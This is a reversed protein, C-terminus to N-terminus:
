DVTGSFTLTYALELFATQDTWGSIGGSPTIFYTTTQTYVVVGSDDRGEYSFVLAAIGEQDELRWNATESGAFSDTIAADYLDNEDTDYYFNWGGAFGGDGIRALLPLDGATTLIKYDEPNDTKDFSFTEQLTGSISYCVPGASITVFGTTTETRTTSIDQQIQGALCPGAPDIATLTTITRNFTWVGEIDDTGSGSMSRAEDPTGFLVKAIDYDVTTDLPVIVDDPFAEEEDDSSSSGGGCANLALIFFPILLVHLYKM